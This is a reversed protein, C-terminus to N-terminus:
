GGQLAADMLKEANKLVEVTLDLDLLGQENARRYDGDLVAVGMRRGLKCKAKKIKIGATNQGMLAAYWQNWKEKQQAGDSVVIRFCLEDGMLRLFKDDRWHWRLSVVSGGPYGSHDWEGDSLRERLAM